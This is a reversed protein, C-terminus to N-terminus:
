RPEENGDAAAEEPGAAGDLKERVIRQLAAFSQPSVAHELLGADRRATEEDVGMKILAQSIARNRRYTEEAIERGKETLLVAHHEDMSVYGDRTLNKLAVRVTPRTKNMLAAIDAGHVEGQLHLIYINKLYEELSIRNKM